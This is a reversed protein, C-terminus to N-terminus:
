VFVGQEDTLALIRVPEAEGPALDRVLFVAADAIPVASDPQTVHGVVCSRLGACRPSFISITDHVMEPEVHGAACGLTAGFSLLAPWVTMFRLDLSPFGAPGGACRAIMRLMLETKFRMPPCTKGIERAIGARTQLVASRPTPQISAMIPVRRAMARRIKDNKTM